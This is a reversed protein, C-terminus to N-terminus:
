DKAQAAQADAAMRRQVIGLATADVDPLLRCVDVMQGDYAEAEAPSFLPQGTAHDVLSAGDTDPHAGLGAEDMDTLWQAAQEANQLVRALLNARPEEQQIRTIAAYAVAGDDTLGYHDLNGGPDTLFNIIEFTDRVTATLATVATDDAVTVEQNSGILHLGGNADQILIADRISDGQSIAAFDADTLKAGNTFGDSILTGAPVDAATLHQGPTPYQTASM